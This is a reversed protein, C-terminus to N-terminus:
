FQYSGFAIDVALREGVIMRSADDYYSRYDVVPGRHLHPLSTAGLRESLFGWDRQLTEFRGVFTVIQRNSEDCFFKTQPFWPQLVGRSRTEFGGIRVFRSFSRAEDMPYLMNFLSVTRSWPNRIFAFSFVQGWREAGLTERIQLATAHTSALHRPILREGCASRVSTGGTAPVHIFVASVDRRVPHM